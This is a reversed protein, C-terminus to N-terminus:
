VNMGGARGGEVEIAKIARRVAELTDPHRPRESAVIRAAELQWQVTGAM